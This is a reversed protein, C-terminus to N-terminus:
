TPSCAACWAARARGGERRVTAGAMLAALATGDTSNNDYVYIRARPLAAQFGRVVEAVTAAENYCPLLVAIDLDCNVQPQLADTM